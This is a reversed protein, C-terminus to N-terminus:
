LNKKSLKRNEMSYLVKRWEIEPEKKIEQYKSQSNLVFGKGTIPKKSAVEHTELSVPGGWLYEIGMMTNAIYESVLPKEEFEHIIYLSKNDTKEKDVYIFPPHYLTDIVMNKYDESKKSKVFYEWVMKEKNLKKDVVYLKNKSVFDQNIFTNIFSFDNLNERLFFIFEKGGMKGSDYVDRKTSDLIRMFDWSYKGTDVFEEIYNFMRLGLAYPNLGVRPISTVGANLRAFEVEHGSIRDDIMFLKEHWYSAWGENMINTIIQPQFYMSTKRVVGVVSKM